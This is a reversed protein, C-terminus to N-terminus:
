FSAAIKLSYIHAFPYDIGREAKITSIRFLQGTYAAIHLDTMKMKKLWPAGQFSYGVTFSEASITNETQVFRSSMPTSIFNSIGKFQAIDGPQKWRDYLARKDLNNLLSTQSINEVKNFIASNFQDSHYVYRLYLGVTFHKYVLDTSFVGEAAPRSNGVKTMDAPDYDFTYKGNKKLFIEKGTAPDIGESKVAWLDDPSYGDMFRTLSNTLTMQKNLGDLTNKFGEFKMKQLIATFGVTWIIGQRQKSIIQYRINAEVGHSLQEGVNVPYSALGTSAPLEIPIILPSTNKIFYNAYGFLRSKFLSFDAGINVQKTKQWDLNHNGLTTIEVGQGRLNLGSLFGYVSADYITGFSQNGTIGINAKLRLTNVIKSGALWSENHMNWGIGTSWFPTYKKNSGFITSGDYRITGDAILRNKFSYSGQALFSNRRFVTSSTTPKSNPSYNYSFAPNGNSGYPFGVATAEYYDNSSQQMETRLIANLQHMGGLLTGYNAQAFAQYNLLNRTGTTQSGKQYISLNLFETREAPLFIESQEVSKDVYGGASVQLGRVINYSLQLNESFGFVTKQNINNLSANYLPNYTIESGGGLAGVSDLLMNISGDPNRKTFYPNQNVYTSFSGYPSEYKKGGNVRLISAVNFRGPRYNLNFSTEWGENGSGKMAGSQKYYRGAAAYRTVNDGGSVYISHSQRFGTQLPESLWYTNVGREARAWRAYYLSDRSYQATYMGAGPNSQDTLTGYFGSLKEYTLKEKADMMNYSTLDPLEWGLDANYSLQLKGAKPKKTEIVVVGNSAKAGYIATSAADKLLVLTEIRNYDLDVVTRLSVEFGDIIFLPQNPNTTYEDKVTRLDVSTTGRIEINPIVNPNAGTLNNDTIRFSPDLTNIAQIVSLNNVSRLQEGNFVSAAGTFQERKRNVIGTIIVDDAKKNAAKLAVTIPKGSAVNIERPEMGVFSVILVKSSNDPIELSFEGKSNSSTGTQTGKLLISAGQLPKGDEDMVKGTIVIPPPIKEVAPVNEIIPADVKIKDHLPKVVITKDIITYSFPQKKFCQRLVEDIDSTSVDVTVPQAEKLMKTSYLFEYGSQKQIEVFVKELAVNRTKLTIVQSRVSASASM